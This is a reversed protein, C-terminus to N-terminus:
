GRKNKLLKILQFLANKTTKVRVQNRDGDFVYKFVHIGHNNGLSVYVLGVPKDISSGTPGAIGTTALAFDTKATNLVGVAMEYAVESSVAGYNSLSIGSVGLRAAKAENSYSVIGELFAKSANPVNVIKSAVMGGTLSEAIGLTAGALELLKVAVDELECDEDAYINERFKAYVAETIKEKVNKAVSHSFCVTLKTDCAFDTEVFFRVTTLRKFESLSHIIENKEPGFIKYVSVTSFKQKTALYPMVYNDLTYLAEDFNDPALIIDGGVYKGMSACEYGYRPSFTSFDEPFLLLKEMEFEAPPKLKKEKEPVRILDIQAKKDYVLQRDLVDAVTEKVFFSEGIVFLDASGGLEAALCDKLQKEPASLYLLEFEVGANRFREGLPTCIKLDSTIVKLMKKDEARLLNKNCYIYVIGSIITLITALVLLGLAIYFVVDYFTQSWGIIVDKMKLFLMLPLAIDQVVTKIKGYVNAQMVFGKAAAIQRFVSIFLERGIIISACIDTIYYPIFENELVRAGTAMFLAVAVLLKDAVPDLLKGLETIQNTKRAIYGDLFDTFAAILFVAVALLAGYDFNIYFCVAMIPVLAIRLLSLRNPLNM